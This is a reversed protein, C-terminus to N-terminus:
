QNEATAHWSDLLPRTRDLLVAMLLSPVFLAMADTM